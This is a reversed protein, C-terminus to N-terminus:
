YGKGRYQKLLREDPDNTDAYQQEWSKGKPSKFPTWVTTMKNIPHKKKSVGLYGGGGIAIAGSTTSEHLQSLRM